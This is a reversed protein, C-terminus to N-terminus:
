RSTREESTDSVLEKLRIAEPKM